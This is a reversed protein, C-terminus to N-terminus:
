WCPWTAAGGVWGGLGEAGGGTGLGAGGPGLGGMGGGEEMVVETTGEAGAAEDPGRLNVM